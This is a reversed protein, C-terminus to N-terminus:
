STSVALIPTSTPTGTPSGGAQEVTVAIVDGPQMSGALLATAEGNAATFVGAPLPTGDRVFWFEFSRDSAIEPLGDSVLVAQGLSVSWHVTAEGGGQITGSARQADPASEISQLAVVAAPRDLQARVVTFAGGIALVFALSAALAFWVRRRRRGRGRPLPNAGSLAADEAAVSLGQDDAARSPDAPPDAGEDAVPHQPTLAIRALITDRVSPPPAVEPIGDALMAAADLDADVRARRQPDSALMREFEREEEPTLGHLAHGASLEEFDRETM